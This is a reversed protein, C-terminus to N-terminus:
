CSLQPEAPPIEGDATLPGKAFPDRLMIVDMLSRMEKCTEDFQNGRLLLKMLGTGNVKTGSNLLEVQFKVTSLLKELGSCSIKNRSLNLFAVVFNGTVRLGYPEVYEPKELFPHVNQALDPSGDIPVQDAVQKANRSTRGPKGKPATKSGNPNASSDDSESLDIRSGDFESDEVGKKPPSNETKKGKTAVKEEKQEQEQKQSANESLFMESILLRRQVIEDHTLFFQSLVTALAGAGIDGINNNSLSLTLLTRNTRLAEALYITGKDGLQNGSLDLSLLKSNASTTIGLRMAIHKAEAPGLCCYRLQLKTLNISDDILQALCSDDLKENADITLQRITNNISLFSALQTIQASSLGVRWFNVTHLKTAASLCDLLVSFIRDGILWGTNM